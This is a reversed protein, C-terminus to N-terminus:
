EGCGPLTLQRHLEDTLEEVERPTMGGDVIRGDQYGWCELDPLYQKNSFLTGMCARRAPPAAAQERALRAGLESLVVQPVRDRECPYVFGFQILYAYLVRWNGAFRTLLRQWDLTEARARLVHLVDAGDYREREQVFAKSWMMEEIPVLLAQEGLVLEPVAYRFWDGDVRAVGNGSGFILDVFADDALAKALWVQSWLETRFGAAALAELARRVDGPLLFIDFDKTHREIGTYRALAYAGGVLFPVDADKLTWM